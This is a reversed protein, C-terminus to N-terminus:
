PGAFAAILRRLEAVLRPRLDAPTRGLRVLVLDLGPVVAIYQGEYGVAVFTGWPDDWLWWHAGHRTDDTPDVATLTRGVDVWGEPLVRDGDWVGDRLYLYGFRAFDRATCFCFSSAIWTGVGDFKPQASTMGIRDFLTRKLYSPYDEVLDRVIRSVINSTGSSYNFVEGPPAVLPKSAAFSAMNRQGDGFLMAIVDSAQEDVYDEAWELGPRFTLLDRITIEAREDGEDTWEPVAARQDLAIHDDLVLTGVVAHLMSKATSWSPLTTSALVDPAYREVVIRGGQAALLASTHGLLSEDPEAVTRVQAEVRARVVPDLDGSSWARTPWEVDLPQAPLPVLDPTV